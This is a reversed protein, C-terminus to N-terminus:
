FERFVKSIQAKIADIGAQGATIQSDTTSVGATNNVKQSAISQINTSTTVIEMNISTKAASISARETASLSTDIPVANVLNAVDQLSNKVAQLASDINSQSPNSIATQVTGFAGGNLQAINQSTWLAGNSQGLM